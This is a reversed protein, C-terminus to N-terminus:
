SRRTMYSKNTSLQKKELDKSSPYKKIGEEETGNQNGIQITLMSAQERLTDLYIDDMDTAGVSRTLLDNM